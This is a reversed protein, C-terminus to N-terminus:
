SFYGRKMLRCFQYFEGCRGSGYIMCSRIIIGSFKSKEFANNVIADRRNKSKQYPTIPNPISKENLVPIDIPGMAM